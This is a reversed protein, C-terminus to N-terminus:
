QRIHSSATCTSPVSDSCHGLSDQILLMSGSFGKVMKKARLGTDFLLRLIRASLLCVGVATHCACPQRVKSDLCDISEQQVARRSEAASVVILVFTWFIRCWPRIAQRMPLYRLLRAVELARVQCLRAMREDYWGTFNGVEDWAFSQSSSSGAQGDVKTAVAPVRGSVLANQKFFTRITTAYVLAMFGLVSHLLIWKIGTRQSCCIVLLHHGNSCDPKFSDAPSFLESDSMKFNISEGCFIEPRSANFRFNKM